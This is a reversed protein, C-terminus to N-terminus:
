MRHTVHTSQSCGPASGRRLLDHSPMVSWRTLRCGHEQRWSSKDWKKSKAFVYPRVSIYSSQNKWFLYMIVVMQLTHDGEQKICANWRRQWEQFNKIYFFDKSYQWQMARSTKLHNWIYGKLYIKINPVYFLWVFSMLCSQKNELM